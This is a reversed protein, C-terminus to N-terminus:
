KKAAGIRFMSTGCTPCVGKSAPKGNKMTIAKASKMEKKSRCKVCYAEMKKRGNKPQKYQIYFV